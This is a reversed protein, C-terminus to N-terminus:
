GFYVDVHGPSHKLYLVIIIRGCREDPWCGFDALPSDGFIRPGM